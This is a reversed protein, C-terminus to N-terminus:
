EVTYIEPENEATASPRCVVDGSDVDELPQDLPFKTVRCTARIAKSGDGPEGGDDIYKYFGFLEIDSHNLYAEQLATWNANAADTALKFEFSLKRQGTLVTETDFARLKVSIENREDALSVDTVTDIEVLVPAEYTGSNRYLKDFIGASIAM